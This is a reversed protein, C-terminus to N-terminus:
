DVDITEDESTASLGVDDATEDDVDPDNSLAELAERIERDIMETQSLDLGLRQQCRAPVALMASTANRVIDIWTREVVAASVLEGLAVQNKLHQGDAQEKALRAREATLDLVQNAGGRGAAIERQHEVVAQVSEKLLFKGRGVKKVIGDDALNRVMRDSLRLWEGLQKANVENNM